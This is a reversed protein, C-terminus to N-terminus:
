HRTSALLGSKSECVHALNLLFVCLLVANSSHEFRYYQHPIHTDLVNLVYLGCVYFHAAKVSRDCGCTGLHVLVPFYLVRADFGFMFFFFVIFM